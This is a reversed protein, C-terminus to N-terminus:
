SPMNSRIRFWRRYEHHCRRCKMEVVRYSIDRVKVAKHEQRHGLSECIPCTASDAKSEIVSSGLVVEATEPSGGSALESSRILKERLKKAAREKERKDGRPRSGKKGM